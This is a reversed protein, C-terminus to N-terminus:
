RAALEGANMHTSLRMLKRRKHIQELSMESSNKNITTKKDNFSEEVIGHM